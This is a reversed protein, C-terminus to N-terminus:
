SWPLAVPEWQVPLEVLHLAWECQHLCFDRGMGSIFVLGDLGYGSATSLQGPGYFPGSPVSSYMSFRIHSWISAVQWIRLLHALWQLGCSFPFLNPVSKDLPSWLDRGSFSPSLALRTIFLVKAYFAGRVLRPEWRGLKLSESPNQRHQIVSLIVPTKSTTWQGTNYFGSFVVNRFSSRNGDEPSPVVVGVRNPRKSLALRL